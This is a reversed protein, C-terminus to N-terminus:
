VELSRIIQEELTSGKEKPEKNSSRSVMPGLGFMNKREMVVLGIRIM